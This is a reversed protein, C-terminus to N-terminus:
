MQVSSIARKRSTQVTMIPAIIPTRSLVWKSTSTQGRSDRRGLGGHPQDGAEAHEDDREDEDPGADLERLERPVPDGFEGFQREPEDMDGPRDGADSPQDEKALLHPILQIHQEAPAGQRRRDRIGVGSPAGGIVPARSEGPWAASIRNPM